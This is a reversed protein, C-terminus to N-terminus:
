VAPKETPIAIFPLSRRGAPRFFRCADKGLEAICPEMAKSIADKWSAQGLAIWFRRDADPNGNEIGTKDTAIAGYKRLELTEPEYVGTKTLDFQRIQGCPRKHQPICQAQLNALSEEASLGIGQGYGGDVGRGITLHPASFALISEDCGAGTAKRCLTVAEHVLAEIAGKGTVIWRGLYASNEVIAAHGFNDDQGSLKTHAVHPRFGQRRGEASLDYMGVAIEQIAHAAVIDCKMGDAKCESNVASIADEASYGAKFGGKKNNSSRYFAIHFPGTAHFYQCADAGLVAKCPEMAKNFADVVSPQGFAIWFRPDTDANGNEIRSKGVAITAYKRPQLNEPAYIGSQQLDFQRVQTCQRNQHKTCLAELTAMAEGSSAGLGWLYTGDVALGVALNVASAAQISKSCEAGTAKQCRTVADLVIAEIDGKGTVIWQGLYAPSDVLAVHGFNDDDGPMKTYTVSPRNDTASETGAQALAEAAMCNALAAAVAIQARLWPKVLLM